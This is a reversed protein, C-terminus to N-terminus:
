PLGDFLKVPVPVKFVFQAIANIIVDNTLPWDREPKGALPFLAFSKAPLRKARTRQCKWPKAGLPV